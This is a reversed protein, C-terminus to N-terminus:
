RDDFDVRVVFLHMHAVLLGHVRAAEPVAIQQLLGVIYHKLHLGVVARGAVLPEIPGGLRWKHAVGDYIGSEDLVSLLQTSIHMADHRLLDRSPNFM